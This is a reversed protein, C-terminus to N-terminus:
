AKDPHRQGGESWEHASYIEVRAGDDILLKLFGLVEIEDTSVTLTEGKVEIGHEYAFNELDAFSLNHLRLENLVATMSDSLRNDSDWGIDMTGAELEKTVEAALRKFKEHSSKASTYDVFHGIIVLNYSHESGYGVWIKM